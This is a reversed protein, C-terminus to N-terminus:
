RKFYHEFAPRNDVMIQARLPVVRAAWAKQSEIVKAFFPDAKSEREVIVDWAKLQAELVSRPTTMVTVGKAQFEQLDKSNQDLFYKWTSDASQAVAAYKIIAQLDQPMSEYKTKNILFELVEVPQHYSQVMLFKVVDAFGLLKDSSPNNFEAGDIVGRELAPVIEPGPLITVAVGLENFLDASLGVTRYKLGKLDDPAKIERKFWGLPQTPMPSNFFSLVDLKLVENILEAYMEKGGGYQLWGAFMEADMGFSPGTGFLSAAKTKGFWYAPVGVGGDLLGQHIADILQAFPVVAGNPLYDIKIRGPAMEEIKKIWDAGIQHFIDTNGFTSQFKLNLVQGQAVPAAPAKAVPASTPAQAAPKAAAETPKAAAAAETPKAPAATPKSEAQPPPATCAALVGATVASATGVSFVRLFERRNLADFVLCRRTSNDPAHRVEARAGITRRTSPLGRERSTRRGGGVAMM